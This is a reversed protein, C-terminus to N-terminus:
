PSSAQGPGPRHRGARGAGAGHLRRRAPPRLGGPDGGRGRPTKLPDLRMPVWIEKSIPFAFGQPMVGVITGAQRQHPGQPRRRRSRRQLADALRGLGPGRGARRGPLGRRAPLRPRDAAQRAAPRLQQRDHLRGRLARPKEDGSLNVTGEYFGALDEFSKQRQRAAGPLGPPLGGPQAAGPVPQQERPARAARLEEFPLGRFLVGYVISFMATSLGIGLACLWCRPWASAPTRPWCASASRLDRALGTM